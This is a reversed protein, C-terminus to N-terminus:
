LPVLRLANGGMISQQSEEPLNCGTVFRQMRDDDSDRAFLCRDAYEMLFERGIAPNRSLANLASGASLDCHLNAYTDMYKWLRGGALVDGKPYHSPAADADGSIERWFAPGHGIMTTKPCLELARALNDWDCCYWYGPDASADHRPLPVDMHFIVPLGEEGCYHLMELLYPNDLMVQCKLEGMGRVGCHQVAGQLRKLARPQRPDPAYFPVFRTPHKEVAELVHAIPLCDRGPWLTGAASPSIEHPPAEWTLAWTVDIGFTDMNRVLDDATRGYWKVHNHADVVRVDKPKTSDTM